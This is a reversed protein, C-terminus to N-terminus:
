RRVAAIAKLLGGVSAEVDQDEFIEQSRKGMRYRLADDTALMALADTLAAADGCPYVITNQDPRAIDTPGVAGVRDSIVMPLGM